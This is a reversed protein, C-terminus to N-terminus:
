MIKMLLCTLVMFLAFKFFIFWLYESGGWLFSAKEKIKWVM